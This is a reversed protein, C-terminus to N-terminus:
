DVEGTEQECVRIDYIKSKSVYGLRNGRDHPVYTLILSVPREFDSVDVMIPM